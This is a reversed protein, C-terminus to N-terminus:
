LVEITAVMRNEVIGIDGWYLGLICNLTLGM